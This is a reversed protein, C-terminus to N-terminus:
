SILLTNCRGGVIMTKQQDSLRAAYRRLVQSRRHTWCHMLHYQQHMLEVLSIVSHIRGRARDSQPRGLQVVSQHHVVQQQEQEGRGSVDRLAQSPRQCQVRLTPVLLWTVRRAKCLLWQWPYRAFSTSASGM